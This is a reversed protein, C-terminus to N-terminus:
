TFVAKLLTRAKGQPQSKINQQRGLARVLETMINKQLFGTSETVPTLVALEAM